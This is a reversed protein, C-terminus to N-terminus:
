SRAKEAGAENGKPPSQEVYQMTCRRTVGGRFAQGPRFFRQELYHHHFPHDEIPSGTKYKTYFIISGNCQQLM